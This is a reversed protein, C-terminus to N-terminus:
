RVASLNNDYESLFIIDFLNHIMTQIEYLIKLKIYPTNNIKAAKLSCIGKYSKLNFFILLHINNNSLILIFYIHTGM